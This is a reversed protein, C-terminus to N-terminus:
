NVENGVPKAGTIVSQCRYLGLVCQKLTFIESTGSNNVLEEGNKM